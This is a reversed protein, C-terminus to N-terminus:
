CISVQKPNTLGDFNSKESSKVEISIDKSVRSSEQAQSAAVNAINAASSGLRQSIQHIISNIKKDVDHNDNAIYWSSFTKTCLDKFIAQANIQKRVSIPLKQEDENRVCIIKPGNESRITLIHSKDGNESEITTIDEIKSTDYTEDAIKFKQCSHFAEKLTAALQPDSCFLGNLFAYKSDSNKNTSINNLSESAKNIIDNTLASTQPM